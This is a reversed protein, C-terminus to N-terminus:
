NKERTDAKDMKVPEVQVMLHKTFLNKALYETFDAEVYLDASRDDADYLEYLKKGQASQCCAVLWRRLQPFDVVVSNLWRQLAELSSCRTQYQDVMLYMDFIYPANVQVVVYGTETKEIAIRSESRKAKTGLEFILM